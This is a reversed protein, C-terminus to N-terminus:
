TQTVVASSVHNPGEPSQRFFLPFFCVRELAEQKVASCKLRVPGSSHKASECTKILFLIVLDNFKEWPHRAVWNIYYCQKM